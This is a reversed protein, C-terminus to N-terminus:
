ISKTTTFQKKDSFLPMSFYITWWCSQRQSSETKLDQQKQQRNHTRELLGNHQSNFSLIMTLLWCGWPQDRKESRQQKSNNFHNITKGFGSELWLWLHAVFMNEQKKVWFLVFFDFAWFQSCWHIYASRFGSALRLHTCCFRKSFYCLFTMEQHSITVFMSLAFDSFIKSLHLFVVNLISKTERTWIVALSSLGLKGVSTTPNWRLHRAMWDPIQLDAPIVSNPRCWSSM